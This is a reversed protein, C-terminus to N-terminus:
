RAQKRLFLVSLGLLTLAALLLPLFSGQLEALGLAKSFTGRAITVFHTAPNISGILELQGTIPAAQVAAPLALLCAALAAHIPKM